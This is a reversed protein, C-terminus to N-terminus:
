QDRRDRPILKSSPEGEVKNSVPNERTGGRSQEAVGLHVMIKAEETIQLSDGGVRDASEMTREKSQQLEIEGNRAVGIKARGCKESDRM